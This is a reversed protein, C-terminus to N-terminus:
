ERRLLWQIRCRLSDADYGPAAVVQL